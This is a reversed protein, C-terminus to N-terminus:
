KGCLTANLKKMARLYEISLSVIKVKSNADDTWKIPLELVKFGKKEAVVALECCYFWGDSIAGYQQLVDWINRKFFKFGCMGDKISTKLYLRLILNFIISICYRMPSRGSVVSDAHLRSGYVFDVNQSSLSDLAEKVHTLDTAIDLDMYGIFDSTVNKWANKLAIGVGKKHTSTLQLNPLTQCLSAAKKVTSDTSGNDSIILTWEYSNLFTTQLHQYITTIQKSITTEENLTPIVISVTPIM